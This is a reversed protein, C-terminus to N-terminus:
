IAWDAFVEATHQGLMPAPMRISGPSGHLTVTVGHTTYSGVGPHQLEVIQNRHLLQPNAVVDDIRAIKACPVGAEEMLEVIADSGHRLTWDQVAAEVADQNELRASASAFRPDALLGPTSAAEVYRRFLADTGASLYVWEGDACRFSNVPASYRDRNGMRGMSLGLEKFDPIASMLMSSATELLTAEVLQGQGSEARARLASLAGITAYLSTAYDVFFTGAMTPPGDPQGTIHMLGGMAQAIVDFCARSAYPGDQGFGSIRVLILRPNLASLVEWGCGMKELTGSRFNEIMIDAKSALRRLKEQDAPDRFDLEVSRKNRNFSLFYTSEGKLRPENLRTDDGTGKKEVKVVDAGMDGLQMGCMPGAIFRSLDLVKIGHLAPQTPM